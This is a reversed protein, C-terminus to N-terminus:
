DEWPLEEKTFVPGERCIRKVGNRTEISCGMCAGFGCGMRAELSFQGPVSTVRYLAKMMPMPGCAYFYSGDEPLADTVFGKVGYSGDVTTVATEVGLQRFEEVMFVESQTNFGLVAMVERDENKLQKALYYLPPVGAGGGVLMVRGEAPSLNYGNGLELLTDIEDGPRFTSMKRTGEGVVRYVLTLVDGQVDCVSIPRRLFMGEIKLNVFQGPRIAADGIGTLKMRYVDETLASQELVILQKQKM